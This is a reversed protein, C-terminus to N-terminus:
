DNNEKEEEEREELPTLNNDNNYQYAEGLDEWDFYDKNM